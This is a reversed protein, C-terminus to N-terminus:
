QRTYYEEYEHSKGDAGKGVRRRVFGDKEFIWYAAVLVDGDKM